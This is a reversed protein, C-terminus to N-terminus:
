ANRTVEFVTLTEPLSGGKIKLSAVKEHVGGLEKIFQNIPEQPVEYKTVPDAYHTPIVARPSLQRVITTADRGDLTYGGGGVPIVVIDVTGISELDDDSIPADVHCVVAFRVGSTELRYITAKKSSEDPDIHRKAAMGRVSVDGIEYEGPMDIVFTADKPVFEEQTAVVIADKNTAERSHANDTPDTVIMASKTKIIVCNAGRYEIEM